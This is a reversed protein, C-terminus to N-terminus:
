TIRYLMHPLFANKEKNYGTDEDTVDPIMDDINPLEFCVLGDCEEEGEDVTDGLGDDYEIDDSNPATDNNPATPDDYDPHNFNNAPYIGPSKQEGVLSSSGRIGFEAYNGPSASMDIGAEGISGQNLFTAWWYEVPEDGQHENLFSEMWCDKGKFIYSITDNFSSNAAGISEGKGSMYARAGYSQLTGAYKNNALNSVDNIFLSQPSFYKIQLAAPSDEKGKNEVDYNLRTFPVSGGVLTRSYGMDKADRAELGLGQTGSLSDTFVTNTFRNTESQNSSSAKANSNYNDSFISVSNSYDMNQVFVNEHSESGSTYYSNSISLDASAISAAFLLILILGPIGPGKQPYAYRISEM